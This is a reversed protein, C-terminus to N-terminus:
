VYTLFVDCIKLIHHVDKNDNTSNFKSIFNLKKM